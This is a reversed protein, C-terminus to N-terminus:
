CDRMGAEAAKDKEEAYKCVNEVAAKIAYTAFVAIVETVVYRSLTEAIEERGQWALFYSCWVWAM